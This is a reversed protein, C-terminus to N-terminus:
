LSSDDLARLKERLVRAAKALRAKTGALSLSVAEAVEGRSLGQFFYLIVVERLDDDMADIALQVRRTRDQKVARGAPTTSPDIPIVPHSWAERSTQLASLRAKPHLKRLEDISRNRAVRYLWGRLSGSPRAAQRAQCCAMLVDQVIDEALTENYVMRQCFLRLEQGYRRDIEAIASRDGAQLRALLGEDQDSAM